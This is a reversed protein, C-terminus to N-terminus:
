QLGINKLCCKKAKRGSGCPCPQNRRINYKPTVPMAKTQKPGGTYGVCKKNTGM